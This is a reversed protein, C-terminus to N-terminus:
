LIITTSVGVKVINEFVNKIAASFEIEAKTHM